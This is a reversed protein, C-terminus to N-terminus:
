LELVAEVSRNSLDRRLTFGLRTCLHQMQMNELLIGAGIRSIKEIRAIDILRRLLESGIGRNQFADSVLVAVEGDNTGSVKSLRGVAVIEKAGTDPAIRESVLAIERDYDIFCMRVLREHAIRQDLSVLHFYRRYVTDQSLTQHFQAVLPEDEPRVPRITLQTEDKAKWTGVYQTPYPRIALRPLDAEPMDAPNLVVRADLALIGEPSILLPNIDIERISREEVVLRSFRVLFQELADLDAPKRGRVGQLAKYLKTQEMMRRALVTNLPPLALAHDDFIEVLQGGSGFLLVPGFQPDLTSGLIAEYGDKGVMPQITVGLFNGPGAKESVSFQIAQYAKRVGAEDILNLRVGGVDSKHTITGSLLKLVVPYGIEKAKRVADEESTAELTKVVPIGYLALLQKSESETLLTRGAKRIRQILETAAVGYQRFDDTGAVLEPTEYLGHLNYSSRWMYHFARVATDPYAFTPINARNFIDEGKEIQAGGMWCALIPKDTRKVSVAVREAIDTPDTMAQPSLIVLLGDSNPDQSVVDVAKAYRDADADGLVDVPNGHSWHTPLQRNLTEITQNSLTALECGEEILADTALVGPGGANTLITLRPGRPRPQKALAEAMYFLADISNVRLVGCRRLAADLVEDSGALAGTHSTAAKAAAATRGGKLLIIPKSLAVQRAASLFSRPDGITEMYLIISRTKPDNGFYDILDGWDVDAMSGVSVFGSFGVLERMSWDLIASCLAGSQSIFAVNGPLAIPTAFTANLGSLPSMVGLCNPGIIRIGGRKAEDLVQQELSIGKAGAEKFGASIVIAGKTGAKACEKIVAPVESAPIAIVVLEPVEPLESVSRYATIGLVSKKRFNVPYVTGGFPSSLLNWLISRGVSGASDSAGVLALTRPKFFVDLPHRDDREDPLQLPLNNARTSDNNQEM